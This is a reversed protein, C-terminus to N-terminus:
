SARSLLKRSPRRHLGACTQKQTGKGVGVNECPQWQYCVTIFICVQSLPFPCTQQEPVITRRIGCTLLLLRSASGSRSIGRQIEPGLM